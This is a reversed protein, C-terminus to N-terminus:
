RYNDPTASSQDPSLPTMALSEVHKKVEAPIMNYYKGNQYVAAEIYKYGTGAVAQLTKEPNKEMETRVTHLTAGGFKEQAFSLTTASVLLMLIILQIEPIKKM